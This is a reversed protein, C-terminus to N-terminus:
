AHVPGIPGLSSLLADAGSDALDEFAAFTNAALGATRDSVGITVSFPFVL